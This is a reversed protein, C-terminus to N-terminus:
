DIIYDICPEDKPSKPIPRTKWPILAPNRSQSFIPITIKSFLIAPYRSLCSSKAPYRSKTLWCSLSFIERQFVLNTAFITQSTVDPKRNRRKKLNEKQNELNIKRLFLRRLNRQSTQEYFLIGQFWVGRSNEPFNKFGQLFGSRTDSSTVGQMLNQSCMACRFQSM